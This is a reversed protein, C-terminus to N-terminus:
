EAKSLVSLKPAPPTQRSADRRSPCVVAIVLCPALAMTEMAEPRLGPKASRSEIAMIFHAPIPHNGLWPIPEPHRGGHSPVGGTRAGPRCLCCRPQGNPLGPGRPRPWAHQERTRSIATALRRSTRTTWLLRPAAAMSRGIRCHGGVGSHGQEGTCSTDSTADARCTCCGNRGRGCRRLPSLAPTNTARGTGCHSGSTGPVMPGLGSDRRAFAPGSARGRRCQSPRAPPPPPSFFFFVTSCSTRTRLTALCPMKLTASFYLPALVRRWPIAECAYVSTGACVRMCVPSPPSPPPAGMEGEERGSDVKNPRRALGKASRAGRCAPTYFSSPEPGTVPSLRM